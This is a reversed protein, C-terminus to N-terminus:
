LNINLLLIDVFSLSSRDINNMDMSATDIKARM